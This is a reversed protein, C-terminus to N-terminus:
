RLCERGERRFGGESIRFVVEGSIIWMQFASSFSPLLPARQAEADRSREQQKNVTRLIASQFVRTYQSLRSQTSYLQSAVQGASPDSGVSPVYYFLIHEIRYQLLIPYLYFSYMQFIHWVQLFCSNIINIKSYNWQLSCSFYNIKMEGHIKRYCYITYRCTWIYKPEFFCWKFSHLTCTHNLIYHYNQAYSHTETTVHCSSSVELIWKDNKIHSFTFAEGKIGGQSSFCCKTNQRSLWTVLQLADSKQWHPRKSASAPLFGTKGASKEVSTLSSITLLFHLCNCFILSPLCKRTM